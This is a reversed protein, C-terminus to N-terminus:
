IKLKARWMDHPEAYYEVEVVQLKITVTDGVRINGRGTMNISIGSQDDQSVELFFDQEHVLNTYNHNKIKKLFKMNKEVPFSWNNLAQTM